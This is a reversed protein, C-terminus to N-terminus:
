ERIRVFLERPMIMGLWMCVVFRVLPFLCVGIGFWHFFRREPWGPYHECKFTMVLAIIGIFGLVFPPAATLLTEEVAFHQHPILADLTVLGFLCLNFAFLERWAPTFLCRVLAVFSALTGALRPYFLFALFKYKDDGGYPQPVQDYAFNQFFTVGSVLELIGVILWLHEGPSVPKGRVLRPVIFLMGAVAILNLLFSPALVFCFPPTFLAKELPLVLQIPQKSSVSFLSRVLDPDIDSPLFRVHTDVFAAFCGRNRVFQFGPHEHGLGVGPNAPDYNLDAPRSWIVAHDEDSEVLFITTAPDKHVPRAKGPPDRAFVTSEGRPLVYTTLGDGTSTSPCQYTRPIERILLRNHPSDWPEDLRFKRCLPEAEIFPLLQVRWSLLPRGKKDYIDSPFTGFTERYNEFALAITRLNNICSGSSTSGKAMGTASEWFIALLLLFPLLPGCRTSRLRATKSSIGM